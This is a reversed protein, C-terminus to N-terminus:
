RSALDAPNDQTPVFRWSSPDSHQKNQQIRNAIFVHFKGADNNVYSLVIQSDTWIYEKANNYKLERRLMISMKVTLLSSTLELKPITTIKNPAVRSKGIVLSCHLKGEETILRLYSCAGYGVTSADSFHHLEEHIIKVQNSPRICRPIRLSELNTLDSIWTNWRIEIDGSILDDWGLNDRCMQQLIQKGLLIFPSPFGLPDFPSAIVSLSKRRTNVKETPSILFLLNDSDACWQIGLVREVPLCELDLNLYKISSARESLPISDLM